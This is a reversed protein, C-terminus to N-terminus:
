YSPLPAPRDDLLDLDDFDDPETIIPKPVRRYRYPKRPKKPIKQTPLTLDIPVRPKVPSSYPNSYPNDYDYDYDYLNPYPRRIPRRKPKRKPKKRRSSILDMILKAVAPAFQLLISILKSPNQFLESLSFGSQDAAKLIADKAPGALSTFITKLLSTTSSSASPKNSSIPSGDTLLLPTRPNPNYSNLVDDTNEDDLYEVKVEGGRLAAKNYLSGSGRTMMKHLTEGQVYPPKELLEPHIGPIGWPRAKYFPNPLGVRVFGDMGYGNNVASYTKSWLSM